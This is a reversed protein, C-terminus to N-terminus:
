GRAISISQSFRLYPPPISFRRPLFLPLVGKRPGAEARVANTRAGSLKIRLFPCVADLALVLQAGGWCGSIGRLLECFRGHGGAAARRWAAGLAGRLLKGPWRCAEGYRRSTSWAAPEQRAFYPGFFNYAGLHATTNNLFHGRCPAGRAKKPGRGRGRAGFGVGAGAGWRRGGTDSGGRWGGLDNRIIDRIRLAAGQRGAGGRGRCRGAGGPRSRVALRRWRGAGAGPPGM